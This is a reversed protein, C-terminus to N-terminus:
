VMVKTSDWAGESCSARREEEREEGVLSPSVRCRTESSPQSTGAELSRRARWLGEREERRVEEEEEVTVTGAVAAEREERRERREEEVEGGEERACRAPTFSTAAVRPSCRGSSARSGARGGARAVRALGLM